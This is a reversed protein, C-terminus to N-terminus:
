KNSSKTVKVYEWKYWWAFMTRNRCCWSISSANIWLIKSADVISWWEKIVYWDKTMQNVSKAHPNNLWFKGYFHHSSWSRAVYRWKNVMDHFNDKVTGLFLNEVRNDNRIDNKHLVCVSTKRDGFSYLELWLFASAVIRHILTKNTKWDKTLKATLYWKNYTDPKLMTWKIFYKSNKKFNVYRDLSKVRGINSVMYYWEYGPIDKWVEWELNEITDQM